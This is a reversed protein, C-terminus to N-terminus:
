ELSLVYNPFLPSLFNEAQSFAKFFHAYNTHKLRVQELRAAKLGQVSSPPCFKSALNVAQCRDGSVTHGVIKSEFWFDPIHKTFLLTKVFRFVVCRSDLSLSIFGFAACSNFFRRIHWIEIKTQEKWCRLFLNLVLPM